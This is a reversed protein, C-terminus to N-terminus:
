REHPHRREFITDLDGTDNRRLVAVRTRGITASALEGFEIAHETCLSSENDTYCIDIAAPPTFRGGLSDAGDVWQRRGSWWRSLAQEHCTGRDAEIAIVEVSEYEGETFETVLKPPLGKWSLTGEVVINERQTICIRRIQDILRTSEHHVLAALERPAVTSGDDLCHSLIDDYIGDRLAQEILYDKVIDPDLVRFGALDAGYERLATSKGAGPAGATVIASYGGRSPTQRDLYEGIVRKRFKSRTIEGTYRIDTNHDANTHLLNGPASMAILQAAVAGRLQHDDTM